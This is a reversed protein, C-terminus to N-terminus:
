DTGREGEVVTLQVDKYDRLRVMAQSQEDAGSESWIVTQFVNEYDNLAM